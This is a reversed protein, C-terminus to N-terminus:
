GVAATRRDSAPRLRRADSAIVCIAGDAELYAERVACHDDFGQKQLESFLEDPTIMEQRMNARLIKGDKILPLPPPRGGGRFSPRWCILIARHLIGPGSRVHGARDALALLHAPIQLGLTKATECACAEGLFKKSSHDAVREHRPDCASSIQSAAPERGLWGTQDRRGIEPKYLFFAVFGHSLANRGLRQPMIKRIQPPMQPLDVALRQDGIEL